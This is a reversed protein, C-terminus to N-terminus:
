LFARNRYRLRIALSDNNRSPADRDDTPEPWIVDAQVEGFSMTAGRTLVQIPIHESKMTRQFKVFKSDDSPYRAVIASRVYFNNAIDNLGDIHDADAHTALIYDISDLGRSWLYESVVADGISRVDPYLAEQEEGDLPQPKAFNSPKGGGDI